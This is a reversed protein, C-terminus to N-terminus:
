YFNILKVYTMLVQYCRVGVVAGVALLMLVPLVTMVLHVRSQFEMEMLESGKTLMPSMQGSDEGSAVLSVLTPSFLLSCEMWESPKGHQGVQNFATVLQSRVATNGCAKAALHYAHFPLIGAETLTAMSRLFRTLALARLTIGLVPVWSLASDVLYRFGGITSSVRYFGWIMGYILYFPILTGLTIRFYPAPGQMVLVVLPPVFVAVHAVFFPYLLKSLLAQKLRYSQELEGALTVLQRDLTGSTEGATIISLEYESFLHPYTSMVKSLSSGGTIAAAMKKAEPLTGIGATAVARDIALGSGVMTALQRFYISKDRLNFGLLGM